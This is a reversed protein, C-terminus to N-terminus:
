RGCSTATRRMSSGRMRPRSPSPRRSSSAQWALSLRERRGCSSAEPLAGIATEHEANERVLFAKQEDASARQQRQQELEMEALRLKVKAAEAEDLATRRQESGEQRQAALAHHRKSLERHEVHLEALEKRLALERAEGGTSARLMEHLQSELVKIQARPGRV